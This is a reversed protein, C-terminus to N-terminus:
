GHDPLSVQELWYRRSFGGRDRVKAESAIELDVETWGMHALIALIVQRIDALEELLQDVDAGHAEKAEEILKATLAPLLEDEALVRVQADGGAARIIEPIRDRVLKGM